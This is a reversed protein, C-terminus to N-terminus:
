FYTMELDTNWFEALECDGCVRWWVCACVCICAHESVCVVRVCMSCLCVRTTYSSIEFSLETNKHCPFLTQVLCVREM